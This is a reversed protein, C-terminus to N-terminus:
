VLPNRKAQKILEEVQEVTGPIRLNYLPIGLAEAIRMGQGTGGWDRQNTPLAIVADVPEPHAMIGYNRAQLSRAGRSLLHPKPHYQKVSETWATHWVPNYVTVNAGAPVLWSNFRAWPLFIHLKTVDVLSCGEIAANDSGEAAGTSIEYGAEALDSAFGVLLDYELRTSKRTGIIAIRKAM